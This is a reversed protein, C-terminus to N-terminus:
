GPRVPLRCAPGDDPQGKQFDALVRPDPRCTVILHVGDLEGLKWSLTNAQDAAVAEDVADVLLVVPAAAAQERLRRLPIALDADFARRDDGAPLYVGAVIAGPGIDGAVDVSVNTIDGIGAQSVAAARRAAAFGAVSHDLQGSLRQILEGTTAKGAQCFVAASITGEAVPPAAASHTAARGCSAQALRAAVATKGTGPDGRLLFTGPPGALFRSIQTFVWERGAFWDAREDVYDWDKPSLQM